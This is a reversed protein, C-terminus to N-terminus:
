GAPAKKRTCGDKSNNQFSNTQLLNCQEDALATIASVFCLFSLYAVSSCSMIFTYYSLVHYSMILCQYSLVIIHITFHTTLTTKDGCSPGFNMGQAKLPFICSVLVFLCNSLCNTDILSLM